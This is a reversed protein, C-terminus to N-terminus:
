VVVLAEVVLMLRVPATAAPYTLRLASWLAVVLVTLGLAVLMVLSSTRSGAHIELRETRWGNRAFHESGQEAARREGESGAARPFDFTRVWDQARSGEITMLADSGRPPLV